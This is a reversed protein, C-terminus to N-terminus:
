PALSVRYEGPGLERRDQRGPLIMDVVVRRTAPYRDALHIDVHDLKGPVACRYDYRAEIHAHEPNGTLGSGENYGHALVATDQLTCRAPEAPRLWATPSRLASLVTALQHRETADHPPHEFGIMNAGPATVAIQLDDEELAIDVTTTGHVHPSHQRLAQAHTNDPALAIFLLFLTANRFRKM